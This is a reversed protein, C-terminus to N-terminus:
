KKILQKIERVEKILDDMQNNVKSQKWNLYAMFINFIFVVVYSILLVIFSNGLLEPTIEM